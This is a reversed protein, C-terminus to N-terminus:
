KVNAYRWIYGRSTKIKGKCCETIHSNNFRLENEIDTISEWKRILNGNIDYQLISKTMSKSRKRKKPQLGTKYAHQM